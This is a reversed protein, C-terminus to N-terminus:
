QIYTVFGYENPVVARTGERNFAIRRPAGGTVIRKVVTRSARDIVVVEGEFVLGVYLQQQDPTIAMGWPHGGVPISTIKAGSALNFVDVKELDEDAVFLETGDRTVVVDQSKSGTVFTRLVTMTRTDVELAAGGTFTSVYLLQGNPHWALSQGTGALSLSRLVTRSARDIEFLRDVNTVVYLRTDDGNPIVDFVDGTVPITSGQTNTAADVVGITKSWQNAVYARTGDANFAVDTPISGVTVNGSEGLAPLDIRSLRRADLQTIYVVDRRSIALGYPRASLTDTREIVGEPHTGEPGTPDSCSTVGAALLMATALLTRSGYHM